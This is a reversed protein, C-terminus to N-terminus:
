TLTLTRQPGRDDRKEALGRTRRESALPGVHILCCQARASSNNRAEEDRRGGDNGGRRADDSLRGDNGVARRNPERSELNLTSEELDILLAPAELRRELRDVRHQAHERM